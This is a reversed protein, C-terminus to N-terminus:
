LTGPSVKVVSLATDKALSDAGDGFLMKYEASNKDGKKELYLRMFVDGWKLSPDNVGGSGMYCHAMFERGGENRMFDPKFVTRPPKFHEVITSHVPECAEKSFQLYLRPCGSLGKAEYISLVAAQRVDEDSTVLMIPTRDKALGAFRDEIQEKSLNYVESGESSCSPSHLLLARPEIQAGACISSKGGMSHGGLAVNQTDVRGGFFPSSTDSSASIMKKLAVQMEIGDPSEDLATSPWPPDEGPVACNKDFPFIVVYGMAVWRSFITQYVHHTSGRGHQYVILPAGTRKEIDEPYYMNVLLNDGAMQNSLEKMQPGSPPPHPAGGGGKSANGASSPVNAGGGNAAKAAPAAAPKAAPAPQAKDDNATTPQIADAPKSAGCGM